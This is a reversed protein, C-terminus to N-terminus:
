QVVKRGVRNHTYGCMSTIHSKCGSLRYSWHFIALLGISEIPGYLNVDGRWWERWLMSGTM